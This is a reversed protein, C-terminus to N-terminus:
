GRVLRCLRLAGGEETAGGAVSSFGSKGSVVAAGTAAASACRAWSRSLWLRLGYRSSMDELAGLPAISRMKATIPASVTWLLSTNMLFPHDVLQIVDGSQGAKGVFNVNQSLTRTRPCM